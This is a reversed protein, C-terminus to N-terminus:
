LRVVPGQLLSEAITFMNTVTGARLEERREFFDLCVGCSMVEVGRNGLQDLAELVESGETTLLVGRNIFLMRDPLDTVDLLTIIFNKMLLRGLEEPGEGLADSAVLIVNRGKSESRTLSATATREPQLTLSYGGEVERELVTCGRTTAFRAVNERPAGGDVLIEVPAGAGEELARKATVVPLPCAMKRCDISRM